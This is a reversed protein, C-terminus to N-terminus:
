VGSWRAPPLARQAPGHQPWTKPNGVDGFRRGWDLALIGGLLGSMQQPPEESAALSASGTPSGESSHISLTSLAADSFAAAHFSLYRTPIDWALKLFFTSQFAKM